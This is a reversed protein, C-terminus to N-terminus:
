RTKWVTLDAWVCLSSSSSLSSDLLSCHPTLRYLETARTMLGVVYMMTVDIFRIVIFFRVCFLDVVFLV